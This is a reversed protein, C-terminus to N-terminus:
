SSVQENAIEVIKELIRVPKVQEIKKMFKQYLSNSIVFNINGIRCKIESPVANRNIVEKHLEIDKQIEFQKLIVAVMSKDFGLRNVDVKTKIDQLVQGLKEYNWRGNVKNLALLILREQEPDVDVVVAEINRINTYKKLWAIRQHGSLIKKTRENVVIPEVYGYTNFSYELSQNLNELKDLDIRPNDEHPKYRYIDIKKINLVADM